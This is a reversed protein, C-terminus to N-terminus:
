SLGEVRPPSTHEVHQELRQQKVIADAPVPLGDRGRSVHATVSGNGVTSGDTLRIFGDSSTDTSGHAGHRATYHSLPISTRTMKQGFTDDSSSKVGQLVETVARSGRTRWCRQHSSGARLLPGADLLLRELGLRFDSVYSLDPLLDNFAKGWSVLAVVIIFDDWWLRAASQQRAILRVAVSITALVILSITGGYIEPQRSQYYVNM